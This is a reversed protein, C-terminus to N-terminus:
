EEEEIITTKIRNAPPPKPKVVVESYEEGDELANIIKHINVIKRQDITINTKKNGLLDPPIAQNGDVDKIKGLAIETSVQDRYMNYLLEINGKIRNDFYQPQGPQGEFVGTGNQRHYEIEVMKGVRTEQALSLARLGELAELHGGFKRLASRMLTIQQPPLVDLPNVYRRMYRYINSEPIRAGKEELLWTSIHKATAGMLLKDIIENFHTSKAVSSGGQPVYPDIQYEPKDVKFKKDLDPSNTVVPSDEVEPALPVQEYKDSFPTSPTLDDIIQGVGTDTM